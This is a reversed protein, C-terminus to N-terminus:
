KTNILVPLRASVPTGDPGHAPQFRWKKVTQIVEKAAKQDSTEEVEIDTVRGDAGVTVLLRVRADRGTRPAPCDICAPISPGESSRGLGASLRFAGKPAPGVLHNLLAERDPTLAIKVSLGDLKIAGPFEPGGGGRSPIGWVRLDLEVSERSLNMEGAIVVEAGPTKALSRATNAEVIEDSDLFANRGTSATDGRRPLIELAHSADALAVSLEDALQRGLENVQGKPGIFDAVLVRKGGKKVIREAIRVAAKDFEGEQGSVSHTFIAIGAACVLFLLSKNCRARGVLFRAVPM